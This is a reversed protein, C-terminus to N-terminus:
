ATGRERLTRQLDRVRRRDLEQDFLAGADAFREVHELLLRRLERNRAQSAATALASMAEAVVTPNRAAAHRIPDLVSDLLASFNWAPTIVRLNGKRDRRYPSPIRRGGIRILSAQLQEIADLATGVANIAPSLSRVAILSLQQLGFGLDDDYTRQRGISVTGALKEALRESSSGECWFKALVTQRTVFDGPMVLLRVVADNSVALKLLEDAAIDLVFGERRSPVETGSQEILAAEQANLSEQAPPSEQGIEEPFLVDMTGYLDRAVAAVVNEAQIENIVHHIFYVLVAVGAVALFIGVAVSLAPVFHGEVRRMVLLGYIFTGLFTGLVVQNGTDRAFSKLVRTGFQSSALTLAVVTISFVVGAVTMMSQSIVSLLDRAGNPDRTYVFSLHVVYKMGLSRDLAIMGYALAACGAIMLAPVFWYSGRLRNWVRLLGTSAAFTRM